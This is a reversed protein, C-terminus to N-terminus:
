KCRYVDINRLRLRRAQAGDIVIIIYTHVHQYRYQSVIIRNKKELQRLM